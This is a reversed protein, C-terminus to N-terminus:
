HTKSEDIKEIDASTMFLMLGVVAEMGSTETMHLHVDIQIIPCLVLINSTAKRMNNLCLKWKRNLNSVCSLM